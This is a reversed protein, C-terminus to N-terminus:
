WAWRLKMDIIVKSIILFHISVSENMQSPTFLSILLAKKEVDDNRSMKFDISQTDDSADESIILLIRKKKYEEPITKKKWKMPVCTLSKIQVKEKGHTATRRPFVPFVPSFCDNCGYSTRNRAACREGERVKENKRDGCEGNVEKREANQRWERKMGAWGTYIYMCRYRCMNM